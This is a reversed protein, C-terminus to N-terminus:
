YFLKKGNGSWNDDEDRHDSYPNKNRILLEVTIRDLTDNSKSNKVLYSNWCLDNMQFKLTHLQSM